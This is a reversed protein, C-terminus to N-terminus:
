SGSIISWTAGSTVVSTDYISPTGELDNDLWDGDTTHTQMYPLEGYYHVMSRKAGYLVDLSVSSVEASGDVIDQVDYQSNISYRKEGLQNNYPYLDDKNEMEGYLTDAWVLDSNHLNNNAYVISISMMFSALMILFLISLALKKSRALKKLTCIM